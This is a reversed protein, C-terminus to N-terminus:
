EAVEPSTVDYRRGSFQRLQNNMANTDTLHRVTDYVPDVVPSQEQCTLIVRWAAGNTPRPLQFTFAEGPKLEDRFGIWDRLARSGAGTLPTRAWTGAKAQEIAQPVCAIHAWTSNSLCFVAFSGAPHNTFGLFLLSADWTLSSGAVARVRKALLVVGLGLTLVLCVIIILKKV